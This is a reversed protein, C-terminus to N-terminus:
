SWCPDNRIHEWGILSSTVSYRRRENAPHMSLIIGPDTCIVIGSPGVSTLVNLVLYVHSGMVYSMKLPVYKLHFIIIKIWHIKQHGTPKHLKRKCSIKIAILIGLFINVLLHHYIPIKKALYFHSPKWINGSVTEGIGICTKIWLRLVVLITTEDCRFM